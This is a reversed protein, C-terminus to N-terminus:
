LPSAPNLGTAASLLKPKSYTPHINKRPITFQASHGVATARASAMSLVVASLRCYMHDDMENAMRIIM